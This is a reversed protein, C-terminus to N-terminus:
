DIPQWLDLDCIKFVSLRERGDFKVKAFPVLPLGFEVVTGVRCGPAM